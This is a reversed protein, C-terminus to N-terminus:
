LQDAIFESIYDTWKVPRAETWERARRFDVEFLEHRLQNVFRPDSTALDTEQNIRLSLKDFNASGVCAWGDYIAAKVHSMGPYSYVRIGNNLFARAALINASNMFGSDTGTPLIVRVDVGRRRAAILASIVEDDSVYPQEIFIRSKAKRMAALQARLIQTDGTRTYLPRVDIYDQREGPGTYQEAKANALAYAFDGGVGAYAWRRDFDKQLRGVIPGEVQMMLDHWEYRYERGINMGGIFTRAHDVVILKTHDSTLWPNDLVRVEIASGQQLYSAISLPPKRRSYYPSRSPVQGAMMSGLEDILVRVKIEHSRQKLLDAIRLAYDDSDFIYLQIDVSERAEQIAQILSVFFAEGDVLPKMSGRYQDHGVRENLYQEWQTQDMEENSAIPPPPESDGGAGHPLLAAGSHATLWVLRNTVSLPSKVVSLLHSRLTLADVLRLSFGLQQDFPMPSAPRTIFVSENRDFDFLVFASGLEDEGVVFLAPGSPKDGKSLENKLYANAELSFAEESISHAIKLTAPKSEMRYVHLAGAKDRQLVIDVGQVTVLTGTEESDPAFKELLARVLTKWRENDFLMVPQWDRRLAEPDPIPDDLLDLIATHYIHQDAAHESTPWLAGLNATKNATQYQLLLKGDQCYAGAPPQGLLAELDTEGAPRPPHAACGALLLLLAGFGMLLAPLFLPRPSAHM